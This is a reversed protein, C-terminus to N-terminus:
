IMYYKKKILQNRLVVWMIHKLIKLVLLLYAIVLSMMIFLEYNKKIKPIAKQLYLESLVLIKILSM